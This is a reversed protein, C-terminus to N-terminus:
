STLIGYRLRVVLLIDRRYWPIPSLKVGKKGFHNELMPFDNGATLAPPRLLLFAPEIM